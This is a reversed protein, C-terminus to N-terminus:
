NGKEEKRFADRVHRALNYEKSVGNHTFLQVLM